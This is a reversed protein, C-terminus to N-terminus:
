RARASQEALTKRFAFCLAYCWRALPTVRLSCILRYQWFEFLYNRGKTSCLFHEVVTPCKKNDRAFQPATINAQSSHYQKATINAERTKTAFIIDSYAYNAFCIQSCYWQSCLSYYWQPAIDSIETSHRNSQM